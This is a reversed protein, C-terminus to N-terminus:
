AGYREFRRLRLAILLFMAGVVLLLPGRGNWRWMSELLTRSNALQHEANAMGRRTIALADDLWAIQDAATATDRIATLSDLTRDMTASWARNRTVASRASLTLLPPAAFVVISLVFIWQHLRHLIGRRAVILVRVHRRAAACDM